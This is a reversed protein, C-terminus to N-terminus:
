RRRTSSCPTSPTRTWASCALCRPPAFTEIAAWFVSPSRSESCLSAPRDRPPAPLEGGGGVVLRRRTGGRGRHRVRPHCGRARPATTGTVSVMAAGAVAVDDLNIAAAAAEAAAEAAPADEAASSRDVIARSRVASAGVRRGAAGALPADARRSVRWRATADDCAARTSAARRPAVAAREGRALGAGFRSTARRGTRVGGSPVGAVGVATATARLASM